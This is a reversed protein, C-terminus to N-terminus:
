GKSCLRFPNMGQEEMALAYVRDKRELMIGERSIYSSSIITNGLLYEKTIEDISAKKM